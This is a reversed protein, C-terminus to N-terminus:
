HVGRSTKKFLFSIINVRPPNEPYGTKLLQFGNKIFYDILGKETFYQYHEGPKFHKWRKIDQGEPLIPTTGAVFRTMELKSLLQKDLDEFHEIVDWFTILDYADHNIGTQPWPAIDFTDVEVGPPRFARFWGPGSGYDLVIRPNIKNVFDWRIKSIMEATSSNQKLMLDWYNIDYNFM